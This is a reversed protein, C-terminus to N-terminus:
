VGRVKHTSEKVIETRGQEFKGLGKGEKYGMKAMMKSAFSEPEGLADNKRKQGVVYHSTPDEAIQTPSSEADDSWSLIKSLDFLADYGSSGYLM